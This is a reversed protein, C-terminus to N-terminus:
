RDYDIGIPNSRWCLERIQGYRDLLFLIWDFIKAIRKGIYPDINVDDGKGNESGQLQRPSSRSRSRNEVGYGTAMHINTGGKRNRSCRLVYRVDDM